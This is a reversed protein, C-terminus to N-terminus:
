DLALGEAFLFFYRLIKALQYKKNNQAIQFVCCLCFMVFKYLYGCGLYM